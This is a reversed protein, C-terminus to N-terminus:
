NLILTTRAVTVIRSRLFYMVVGFNLTKVLSLVM